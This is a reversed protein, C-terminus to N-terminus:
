KSQPKDDIPLDQEPLYVFIEHFFRLADEM